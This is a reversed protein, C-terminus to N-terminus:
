EAWKLRLAVYPVFYPVFYPVIPSHALEYTLWEIGLLQFLPEDFSNVSLPKTDFRRVGCPHVLNEMVLDGGSM